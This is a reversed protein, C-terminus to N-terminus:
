QLVRISLTACMGLGGAVIQWRLLDAAAEVIGANELPGCGMGLFGLDGALGNVVSEADKDAACVFIPAASPRLREVGLEVVDAPIANFAKVVRGGPVDAALREARSPAVRNFHIGLRGQPDPAELGLIASNTCDIVIKGALAQLVRLLGSPLVDRVTYLVVDGFAAADDFSGSEASRGAVAQAKARDRSGFLVEHGARVWGSGLARGMNGTGIIGIKM